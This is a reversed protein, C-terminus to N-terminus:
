ADLMNSEMQESSVTLDEAVHEEPNQDQESDEYEPMMERKIMHHMQDPERGMHHEQSMIEQKIHLGGNMPSRIMHDHPPTPSRDRPRSAMMSSNALFSLNNEEMMSAQM